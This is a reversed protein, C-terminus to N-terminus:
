AANGMPSRLAKRWYEPDDRYVALRRWAAITAPSVGFQEAVVRDALQNTWGLAALEIAMLAGAMRRALQFDRDFLPKM